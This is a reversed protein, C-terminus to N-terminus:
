SRLLIDIFTQVYKALVFDGSCEDLAIVIELDLKKSFLLYSGKTDDYHSAVVAGEM